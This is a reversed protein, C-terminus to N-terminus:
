VLADRANGPSSACADVADTETCTQMMWPRLSPEGLAKRLARILALHATNKFERPIRHLADM